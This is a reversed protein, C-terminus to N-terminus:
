FIMNELRRVVAFLCSVFSTHTLKNMWHQLNNAVAALLMNIADGLTGRLFNRIMRHGSKLHGIVPV